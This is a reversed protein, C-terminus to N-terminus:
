LNESISVFLHNNNEDINKFVRETYFKLYAQRIQFGLNEMFAYKLVDEPEMEQANIDDMTVKIDYLINGADYAKAVAAATGGSFLGLVAPVVFDKVFATSLEDKEKETFNKVERVCKKALLLDMTAQSIRSDSEFEGERIIDLYYSNRITALSDLYTNIYKAVCETYKDNDLNKQWINVFDDVGTGLFFKLKRWNLFGGAYDNMVKDMDKELLSDIEVQMAPIICNVFTQKQLIANEKIEQKIQTLYKKKQSEYHPLLAEEAPTNKVIMKVAKITDFCCQGVVPIINDTYLTDVFPSEERNDIFFQAGSTPSLEAFKKFADEKTLKYDAQSNSLSCSALGWVEIFLLLLYRINLARGREKHIRFYKTLLNFHENNINNRTSVITKRSKKAKDSKVYLVQSM